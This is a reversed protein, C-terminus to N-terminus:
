AAASQEASVGVITVTSGFCTAHAGFRRRLWEAIGVLADRESAHALTTKQTLV